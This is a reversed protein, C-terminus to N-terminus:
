RLDQGLSDDGRGGSDEVGRVVSGFDTRQTRRKGDGHEWTRVAAKWDVMRNKGVMWGKATYHDMWANPDVGNGREACYARVEDLSPPVFRKSRGGGEPAVAIANPTKITPIPLSLLPSSLPLREAALRCGNETTETQQCCGVLLWDHPVAKGLAQCASPRHDTQDPGKRSNCSRCLPQLNEIGDSGGKYIPVIHDKVLQVGETGCAVCRCGLYSVLASWSEETHTGKMRADALRLSRAQDTQQKRWKAEAGLRAQASRKDAGMLWPQHEQWDHLRYGTETRDIWGCEEAAAAFVGPEGNWGADLEVDEATYGPLEGTPHTEATTLWLDLLALVGAPGVRAALRKRKRHDKFSVKVRIDSADSM